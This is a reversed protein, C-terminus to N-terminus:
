FKKSPILIQENNLDTPMIIKWIAFNRGFQGCQQLHMMEKFAYM